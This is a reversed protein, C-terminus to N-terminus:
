GLQAQELWTLLHRLVLAVEARCADNHPNITGSTSGKFIGVGVAWSLAERAWPSITDEDTFQELDGRQSVDIGLYDGVYRYIIVAIEQRTIHGFPRFTGDGSGNVLGVSQAWEVGTSYWAGNPVDSFVGSYEVVPFGEIKCLVVAMMSRDMSTLPSFLTDSVGNFLGREVVFYAGDYFWDKSKTLDTFKTVVEDSQNLIWYGEVSLTAADSLITLTVGEEAEAVALYRHHVVFETGETLETGTTIDVLGAATTGRGSMWLLGSGTSLTIKDGRKLALQEYHASYSWDALTADSLHAAGIKNVQDAAEQYLAETDEKARGRFMEQLENLFTGNLYSLSILPDEVSGGAAFVHVGLLLATALAVVMLVRKKM